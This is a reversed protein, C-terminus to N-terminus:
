LARRPKDPPHSRALNGLADFEYVVEHSTPELVHTVEGTEPDHIRVLCHDPPVAFDQDAENPKSIRVSEATSTHDYDTINDRRDRVGVVKWQTALMPIMEVANALALFARELQTKDAQKDTNALAPSAFVWLHKKGRYDRLELTFSRDKRDETRLQSAATRALARLHDEPSYTYTTVRCRPDTVGPFETVAQSAYNVTEHPGASQDYWVHLAVVEGNKLVPFTTRVRITSSKSELWQHLCENISLCASTKEESQLNREFYIHDSSVERVSVGFQQESSQSDKSM